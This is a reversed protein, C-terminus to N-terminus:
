VIMFWLALGAGGVVAAGAVAGVLRAGDMVFNRRTLALGTAVFLILNALGHTIWHHGTLAAMADALPDYADEICALLTNFLIVVCAAVGFAAAAGDLSLHVAPKSGAATM